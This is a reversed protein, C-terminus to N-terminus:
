FSLLGKGCGCPVSRMRDSVSQQPNEGRCCLVEQSKFVYPCLSIVRELRGVGGNGGLTGDSSILAVKSANWDTVKESIYEM